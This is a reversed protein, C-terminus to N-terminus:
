YISSKMEREYKLLAPISKQLSGALGIMIGRGARGASIYNEEWKEDGVMEAQEPLEHSPFHARVAEQSNEQM